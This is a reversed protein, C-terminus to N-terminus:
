GKLVNVRVGIQYEAQQFGSKGSFQTAYFGGGYHKYQGNPMQLTPFSFSYGKYPSLISPQPATAYSVPHGGQLLPAERSLVEFPKWNNM